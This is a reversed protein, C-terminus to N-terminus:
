FPLERPKFWLSQCADPSVFVFTRHVQETNM